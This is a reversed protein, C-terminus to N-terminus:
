LPKRGQFLFHVHDRLLNCPIRALISDGNRGAISTLISSQCMLNSDSFQSRLGSSLAPDNNGRAKIAIQVAQYVLSIERGTKPFYMIGLNIAVLVMRSCSSESNRSSTSRWVPM